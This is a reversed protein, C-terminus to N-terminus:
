FLLSLLRLQSFWADMFGGNQQVDFGFFLLPLFSRHSSRWHHLQLRGVTFASQLLPNNGRGDSGTQQSM